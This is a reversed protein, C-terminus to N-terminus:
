RGAREAVPDLAIVPIKRTTKKESDAFGPRRDMQRAYLEDREPGTIVTARVPIRENGV